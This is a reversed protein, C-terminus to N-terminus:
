LDSPGTFADSRWHLVPGIEGHDSSIILKRYDPDRGGRDAIGAFEEVHGHTRDLLEPDIVQGPDWDSDVRDVDCDCGPHIPMLNEVRYRQTSAISCLACNERGTLVRRFYTFGGAQLSRQSQKTKVLQIDTSVIQRLRDASRKKAVGFSLGAALASYLDIAPRRYVVAPDVGRPALIEDRPLMVMPVTDGRAVNVQTQFAATLSAMKVQQSQIVPVVLQNFREVDDDRYSRLGEWARLAANVTDDRLSLAASVYGALYQDPTPM